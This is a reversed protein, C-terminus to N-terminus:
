PGFDQDLERLLEDVLSRRDSDDLAGLEPFLEFIRPTGREVDGDREAQGEPEVESSDVEAEDPWNEDEATM